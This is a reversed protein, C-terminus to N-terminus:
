KGVKVWEDTPILYIYWPLGTFEAVEEDLPSPPTGPPHSHVVGQIEGARDALIYDSPDLAFDEEPNEAINKCRWYKGDVILGVSEKPTEELAHKKADSRFGQLLSDVM